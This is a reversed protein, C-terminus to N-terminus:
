KAQINKTQSLTTPVSTCHKYVLSEVNNSHENYTYLTNTIYRIVPELPLSIYERFLVTM